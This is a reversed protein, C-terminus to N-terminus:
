NELAYEMLVKKSFLVLPMYMYWLHCKLAKLARVAVCPNVEAYELLHKYLQLDNWPADIAACCTM